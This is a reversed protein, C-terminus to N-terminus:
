EHAPAFQAVFALFQQEQFPQRLFGRVGHARGAEEDRAQMSIAVLPVDPMEASLTDAMEWLQDNLRTDAIILSLDPEYALLANAELV